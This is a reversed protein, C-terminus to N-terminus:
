EILRGLRELPERALGSALYALAPPPRAPERDRCELRERSAERVAVGLRARQKLRDVADNDIFSM